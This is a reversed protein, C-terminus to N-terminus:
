RPSISNKVNVTKWSAQVGNLVKAVNLRKLSEFYTDPGEFGGFIYVFKNKVACSSHYYRYDDYAPLESWEDKDVDYIENFRKLTLLQKSGTVVIYKGVFECASHGIRASLMPARKQLDM